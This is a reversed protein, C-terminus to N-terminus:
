RQCCRAGSVAGSRRAGDAAKGVGRWPAPRYRDAHGGCGRARVARGGGGGAWGGGRYDAGGEGGATGNGDRWTKYSPNLTAFGMLNVCHSLSATLDGHRQIESGRQRTTIM